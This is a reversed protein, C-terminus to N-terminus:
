CGARLAVSHLSSRRYSTGCWQPVLAFYRHVIEDRNDALLALVRSRSLNM